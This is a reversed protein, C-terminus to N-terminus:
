VVTVFRPSDEPSGWTSKLLKYQDDDDGRLEPLIDVDPLLRPIRYKSM